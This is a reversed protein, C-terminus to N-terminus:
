WARHQKLDVQYLNSIIVLVCSSRDDILGYGSTQTLISIYVSETRKNSAFFSIGDGM